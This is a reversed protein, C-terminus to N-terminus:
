ASLLRRRADTVRLEAPRNARQFDPAEAPGCRVLSEGQERRLAEESMGAASLPQSRGKPTRLYGNEIHRKMLLILASSLM